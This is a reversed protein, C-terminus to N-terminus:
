RANPQVDGPPRAPPPPALVPEAQRVEEAKAEPAPPAQEPQPASRAAPQAKPLDKAARSDRSTERPTKGGMINLLSLQTKAQESYISDQHDEILRTFVRHAKKDYGMKLYCIGTQYYGKIGDEHTSFENYLTQYYRIARRYDFRDFYINGILWYAEKRFAGNVYIELYERSERLCKDYLRMEYFHRANDFKLEDAIKGLDEEKEQQAQAALPSMPHRAAPMIAPLLSLILVAIINHRMIKGQFVCDKRWLAAKM